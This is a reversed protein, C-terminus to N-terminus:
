FVVQIPLLSNQPKKTYNNSNKSNIKAAMFNWDFSYGSEEPVTKLVSCRSEQRILNGSVFIYYTKNAELGFPKSGKVVLRNDPTVIYKVDDTTLNELYIMNNSEKERIM